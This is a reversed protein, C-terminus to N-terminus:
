PGDIPRVIKWAAFILYPLGYYYNLALEFALIGKLVLLGSM